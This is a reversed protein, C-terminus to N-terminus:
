KYCHYILRYSGDEVISKGLCKFNTFYKSVWQEFLKKTPFYLGRSGLCLERGEGLKLPIELVCLEKTIRACERIFKEKDHIYHMVSSCVVIDYQKKWNELNNINFLEANKCILYSFNVDLGKYEIAGSKLFMPEYQCSSCGLDLVSKNKCDISLQKFKVDTFGDKQYRLNRVQEMSIIDLDTEKEIVLYRGAKRKLERYFQIYEEETYKTITKDSEPIEIKRKEVNEIFIAYKPIVMVYIITYEFLMEKVIALDIKYNFPIQSDIIVLDDHNGFVTEYAKKKNEPYLNPYHAVLDLNKRIIGERESLKMSYYSKGACGAGIFWFAIKKINGM